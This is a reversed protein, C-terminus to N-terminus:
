LIRKFNRAFHRYQQLKQFSQVQCQLLLGPVNDLHIKSLFLSFIIFNLNKLKEGGSDKQNQAFDAQCDPRQQHQAVLSRRGSNESLGQM